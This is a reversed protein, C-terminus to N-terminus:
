ANSAERIKQLRRRALIAAGLAPVFQVTEPDPVNVEHQLQDRVARAM